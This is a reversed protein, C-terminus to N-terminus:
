RSLKSPFTGPAIANVTIEPALTRAHHRTLLHVAAKSAGYSFTDVEPADIGSISGINVIRAPREPTAAARLLPLLAATLFQVAKVNLDMVKDWGAEPFDELPAGWQTGANNVLVHLADVRDGVAVALANVGDLTVLDAVIGECPGLPTLEEVARDLEDASRACVLVRAGAHLFETAIALGIGRTGGTILATQGALSFLSERPM